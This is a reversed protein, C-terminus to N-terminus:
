ARSWARVGRDYFSCSAVVDPVGRPGARFGWDAGYAISGHELYAPAAAAFTEGRTAKNAEGGAEGGEESGAEGGAEIEVVGGGMAACILRRGDPHWRLRWAGGGVDVADQTQAPRRLARVDWFRVRDDYSGTAVLWPDDPRPAVCTVGAGHAKREVFVPAELGARPDWGKFACDDAGTFLPPGVSPLPAYAVAWAADDHADLKEASVRLLSRSAGKAGGAANNKALSDERGCEHAILRLGGDAGVVALADADASRPGGAPNWDVCTCMGLGGGGCRLSALEAVRLTHDTSGGVRAGEGAGEESEDREVRYLTLYGGADAQALCAAGDVDSWREPAWRLEFIARTPSPTSAPELAYSSPAGAIAADRSQLRFLNLEGVRTHPNSEDGPVHLYSAVALVGALPEHPCSEVGCANVALELAHHTRYGSSRPPPAM